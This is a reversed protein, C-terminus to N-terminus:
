KIVFLYNQQKQLKSSTNTTSSTTALAEQTVINITTANPLHSILLIGLHLTAFSSLLIILGRFVAKM